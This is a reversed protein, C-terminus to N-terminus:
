PSDVERFGYRRAIQNLAGRFWDASDALTGDFDFIVLAYPM